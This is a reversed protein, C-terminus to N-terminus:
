SGWGSAQGCVCGSRLPCVGAACMRGREQVAPQPWSLHGEGRGVRRECIGDCGWVSRLRCAGAACTRALGHLAAGRFRAGRMVGGRVAPWSSRSPFLRGGQIPSPQPAGWKLNSWPMSPSSPATRRLALHTRAATGTHTHTHTHARARARAVCAPPRTCSVTACRSEREHLLSFLLCM